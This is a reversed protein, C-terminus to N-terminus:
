LQRFICQATQPTM